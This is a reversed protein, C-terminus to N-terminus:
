EVVQYKRRGNGEGKKDRKDRIGKVKRGTRAKGGEGPMGAESEVVLQGYEDVGIGAGDRAKKGGKKKEGGKVKGKVTLDGDGKDHKNKRVSRLVRTKAGLAWLDGWQSKRADRFAQKSFSRPVTWRELTGSPTCLDLIVHGRRKLPPLIARPLTFSSPAPRPADLQVESSPEVDEYGDFAADTALQGQVLGDAPAHGEGRVQAEASETTERLDKGRMVALYSFRVDEFNKDKAGLIKQLFGPRVYRQEFHCIDPRGKVMGKQVYMPCGSHNTCPAIIMGKDKAKTLPEPDLSSRDGEWDVDSDDPVPEHIDLSRARAEPSSIRTDLLLERASAVLEFGRAVGKELLLLVGGDVNLLSWLNQTHGRRIYDERLPWLTHPAIVIDFKGKQKTTADAHIYDPLRPIFTTNELLQSARKRLVDSGTLVTAHGLPPTAGAGGLKGDAEALATPSDAADDEHMREWEARLVERVALIGAGGGGADLIRLEGTAAKRVMEEAWGTGLRKRTEALVSTVSAFIGPMLAAMYVDGDMESMREQYADLAIAKQQMTKGLTPTSTSYPLGVGGFIRHASESLHTNSLGSLLLTAPDVFSAKPLLVTSPSTGFRNAITMPHTRQTPDSEEEATAEATMEDFTEQRAIGSEGDEGVLREVEERRKAERKGKGTKPAREDEVEFEIEELAGDEAMRLVGTGLAGQQGRGEVGKGLSRKFIGEEEGNLLGEPVDDGYERGVREGRGVREVGEEVEVGGDVVIGTGETKSNVARREKTFGTATQGATAKNTSRGNKEEPEDAAAPPNQTAIAQANKQYKYVTWDFVYDYQFGERVFLDRFIKRLYSYDPKDDFRLSRTYNLYIAFENPFGRCLVETPTTMKKEMIRDYKQKKTAAKLGQWPLSGRCFYLMVYGLSEMDDRRSQEVGLHTNISAYRATGTLNKNERYPIHFHTKPDRYKKALGFDIVNVQNGRKGIGMLFNDPKIDRHIFSKAHIYEIRSILQDALLLVTKLSFKRNCFNFLDELSPGLLDLVMANYDCETGFWRVFPIGVGGALSKYVRAEYELQPHKAKVSELKIAIEEGSIINTGLYIDGFSGSGIKRGIRYKNGVRLDMTTM